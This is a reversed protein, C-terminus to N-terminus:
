RVIFLSFYVNCVEDARIRYEEAHARVTKYLGSEMM